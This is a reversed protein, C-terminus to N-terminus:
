ACVCLLRLLLCIDIVLSLTGPNDFEARTLGLGLDIALRDMSINPTHTLSQSM